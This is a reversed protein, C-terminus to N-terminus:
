TSWEMAMISEIESEILFKGRIVRCANIIKLKDLENENAKLFTMCLRKILFREKFMNTENREFVQLEDGNEDDHSNNETDESALCIILAIFDSKDYLKELHQLFIEHSHSAVYLQDRNTITSIIKSAKLRVDVDDDMLLNLIAKTMHFTTELSINKMLIEILELTSM